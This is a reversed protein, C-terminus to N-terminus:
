GMRTQRLPSKRRVRVRVKVRVWALRDSSERAESRISNSRRASRRLEGRWLREISRSM